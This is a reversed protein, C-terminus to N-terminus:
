TLGVERHSNIDIATAAPEIEWPEPLVEREPPLRQGLNEPFRKGYRYLDALHNLFKALVVNQAREPTEALATLKEASYSTVRWLQDDEYINIPISWGFYLKPHGYAAEQQKEQARDLHLPERGYLFVADALHRLLLYRLFRLADARTSAYAQIGSGTACTAWFRGKSDTSEEVPFFWRFALRLDPASRGFEVLTADIRKICADIEETLSRMVQSMEPIEGTDADPLLQFAFVESKHSVITLHTGQFPPVPVDDHQLRMGTNERFSVPPEMNLIRFGKKRAQAMDVIEVLRDGCFFGLKGGTVVLEGDNLHPNRARIPKM